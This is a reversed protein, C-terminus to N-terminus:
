NWYAQNYLIYTIWFWFIFIYLIHLGKDKYIHRRASNTAKGVPYRCQGSGGPDDISWDSDIVHTWCLLLAFHRINLVYTYASRPSQIESQPISWASLPALRRLLTYPSSAWIRPAFSATSLGWEVPRGAVTTVTSVLSLTSASLWSSPRMVILSRHAGVPIQSNATIAMDSFKALPFKVCLPHRFQDVYVAFCGSFVDLCFKELATLSVSINKQWSYNRTNFVPNTIVVWQRFYSWHFLAMMWWWALFFNFISVYGTLTM